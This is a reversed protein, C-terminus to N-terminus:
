VPTWDKWPKLLWSGIWTKWVWDWKREFSANSDTSSSFIQLRLSKSQQKTMDSEKRGHITWPIRWALISAHTAKGMELPDEWSLSWVWTEQMAPLDKGLQVVLSTWSYQLPYGIGEGPSRGSGSNFLRRRCQLNKVLQAILFAWTRWSSLTLDIATEEWM